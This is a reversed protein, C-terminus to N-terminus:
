ALTLMQGIAFLTYIVSVSLNQGGTGEQSKVITHIDSVITLANSFDHRLESVITNTTAVGHCIDSVAVHTNIALEAQSHVTLLLWVFVVSRMNFILLIKSLDSKWGAIKEKDSKAHFLRSVVNQKGM